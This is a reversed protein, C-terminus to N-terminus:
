ASEKGGRNRGLVIEVPIWMRTVTAQEVVFGAAEIARRVYIPRCDMFGPFHRHAWQFIRLLPGEGDGKSMGVVVIRGEPKLIRRCELLVNRIEPTDFLELTFSMFVADMTADAYPTCAADGCQLVARGSLGERELCSKARRLMGESLDIGYVRGEPGVARALSALCRGTGCGVELVTEGPLAALLELGKRRIPAESREALLDYVRSIRDYFIRTQERTQSVPL